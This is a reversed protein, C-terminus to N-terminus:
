FLLNIGSTVSEIGEIVHARYKLEGKGLMANLAQGYKLTRHFHDPITFGKISLSLSQGKYWL